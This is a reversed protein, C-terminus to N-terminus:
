FFSKNEFVQIVKKLFTDNGNDLFKYNMCFQFKQYRQKEKPNILYFKM